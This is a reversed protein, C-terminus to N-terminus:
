SKQERLAKLVRDPTIPLEYMRVGIADYIANGIAPLVPHIAGEGVEKAGFPGEPDGSEVLTVDMAPTDVATPIRYDTFNANMLRGEQYRMEESLTQGLGMHISGEIQGEAALPNLAKGCDHAGWVKVVRVHGSHPNVEVESVFAGFSYSPSLGAGSGKFNGGLRPSIYCGSEVFSGRFATAIEVAEDWSLNVSGDTSVVREDEFRLSEPAVGKERGIASTMEDRLKAAAHKAANGVMFTVRSSYSGLDVPTLKTDASVVRVRDLSIGLVEAAIQALMTDSGQGIDAAGSFIVVSGDYDLKEHVVTQPQRNWLIPLASGSIYMGCAVGLGRGYPLKGHRQDWASKRRVSELCERVGNSTIRLQGVTLTNAPLFNRLRFDCPDIGADHALMDILTEVAFRSNVAGHGRMAGCQPKNTYVRRTRFGFRDIRYPGQLLVGNYYTTVVGFSAFAGGDIIIDGWLGSLKGDHDCGLTM